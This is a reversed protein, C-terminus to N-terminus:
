NDYIRTAVSSIAREADWVRHNYIGGLIMRMSSDM